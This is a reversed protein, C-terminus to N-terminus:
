RDFRFRRVGAIGFLAAFGYVAGIQPLVDAFGAGKQVLLTYYGDLAWGHPVALGVQQMAHPMLLRPVMCGGLLGMVMILVSGLSSIQKETSSVAAILLGLTTACCAVGITLVIVAPVSGGIQMGFGVAGIVFLLGVQLAGLVMYPILKAVLLKWRPVPSALLRRWTGSRREEAFSLACTLAIFFGFLVANGPVTIQFPSANEITAKKDDAPVPVLVIPPAGLGEYARGVIAGISGELPGIVQAPGTTDIVLRGPHGHAPDFDAGLVIGAQISGSAVERKIDAESPAMLVHFLGSAELARGIPVTFRQAAPDVWLAIPRVKKGKGEDANFVMGFIAIFVIPLVLLRVIVRPDRRLLQLEKTITPRLM